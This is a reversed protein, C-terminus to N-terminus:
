LPIMRMDSLNSLFVMLESDEYNYEFDELYM